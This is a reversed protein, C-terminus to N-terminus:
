LGLTPVGGSLHSKRDRDWVSFHQSSSGLSSLPHICCVFATMSRTEQTTAIHPSLSKGDSDRQTQLFVMHHCSHGLVHDSKGTEKEPLYYDPRVEQGSYGQVVQDDCFSWQSPHSTRLSCINYNPWYPFHSRMKYRLQLFPCGTVQMFTWVCISKFVCMHACVYACVCMGACICMCEYMYMSVCVCVCVFRSVCVYMSMYMCLVCFHLCACVYYMVCMCVCVYECM